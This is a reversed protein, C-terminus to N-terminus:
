PLHAVGPQNSASACQLLPGWVRDGSAWDCLAAIQNRRNLEIM